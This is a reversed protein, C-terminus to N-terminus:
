ATHTTVDQEQDHYLIKVASQTYGKLEAITHSGAGDNVSIFTSGNQVVASVSGQAVSWATTTSGLAKDLLDSIDLVDEEGRNFDTIVDVLNVERLAEADIVFTDKGSGGTLTNLGAGGLLRDNGAGGYLTDNGAGGYLIDNGDGGYLIDNGAGGYLTDNGAGGDLTDDRDQGYLTDDGDGGYLFNVARTGGILLDNGDGGHLTNSVEGNNRENNAGILVDHGKGGSLTYAASQGSGKDWALLIDNDDTGNLSQNKLVSATASSTSVGDSVTYNFGNVGGNDVHFWVRDGQLDVKNNEVVSKVSLSMGESSGDNWLLAEVPILLKAGNDANTRITEGVAVLPLIVDFTFTRPTPGSPTGYTSGDENGDEVYVNFSAARDTSGDHLFTVRGEALQQSTFSISPVGDVRIGGHSQSTVIFTVETDDPDSFGIDEATLTYSQGKNVQAKFDGTLTPPDNVPLVNLTATQALSDAGHQDTAVVTITRNGVTPNDSVNEYVLGRLITQYVAQSALGTISLRGNEFTVTLGAADSAAKASANLSLSDEGPKWTEGLSATLSKMTPSDVDSLSGNSAFWYANQEYVLPLDAGNGPANVDLDIVPRDNTGTLKIQVVHQDTGGRGDSVTITYNLVSQFGHPLFNFAESGSNFSWQVKGSTHAADIVAQQVNFFSLLQEPTFRSEIGSGSASVGTVKATVVDTFDPDTVSLTGNASLGADTEVLPAFDKDGAELTIVPKDNTGTLKIQVVHQDTGGRGDSVTITYNLVSQFGHPLFNFAESGSNFSWQVKGSTHAADIVAQQVNFFSLLQEPTFRSEIGSGSASVGTVKATVVDTFDPDTVSLTGNASLGADTEVLPAFDKDGAELTIVPRDNTGTLKIQVVHQDTGGRGDSVTITYNLVSQFGHPLFNFAESGSNFSWQVKGSTHAADIVAQQVNFFSLLQEPTFRSEIGSGSASVGTVKATVVDTFDPDTVSLTGNASLGADTEVLPAFDKDGAELTIVPRDNTGILKVEIKQEVSAGHQDTITIFFTEVKVEGAALPNLAKDSVHYKWTVVGAGDNLTEETVIAELWGLYGTEAPRVAVTHTDAQDDYLHFTGGNYNDDFYTRDADSGARPDGEAYETMTGGFPTGISVRPGDNDGVIKIQYVGSKTDGDGDKVTFPITLTAIEGKGLGDFGWGPSVTLEGTVANYSIPPIALTTGTPTAITAAATDFTVAGPGDAGYDFHVGSVFSFTASGDDEGMTGQLVPMASGATLSVNALFTGTNDSANGVEEFTLTNMGTKAIVDLSIKTMTSGPVYTQVLVGNWYVNLAASGVSPTGIEFGLTYHKGNELGAVNQSLKINGPTAGLDVMYGGDSAHMGLYNDAVRELRVGDQGPVTGEIAWGTGFTTWNGWSEAHEWNGDAFSGNALLNAPVAAGLIEPADDMVDIQVHGSATDGDADTVTFSVRMRIADADGSEGRDPHDLPGFQTFTYKGALPDTVKIEFIITGDALKGVLTTPSNELAAVTIPQGNSTLAVKVVPSNGADADYAFFGSTSKLDYNLATIRAGDAGAGFNMKGEVSRVEFTGDALRNETLSINGSYGATPTDDNVKVTLSGSASDGDGDTVKYKFTLTLDEESAGATPHALPAGLKFLYSGDARITLTAVATGSVNGTATWTTVGGAASSTWTVSEVKGVGQDNYIASLSPLSGITVERLGDAGVNFLAGANGSVERAGASGEVNGAFLTQAEDQLTGAFVAGTTKPADDHFRIFGSIDASGTATDGDGDKVTLVARITNAALSVDENSANPNGHALSLYLVTSVKGTVADIAVAFAAKGTEAVRGVVIGGELSLVIAQGETTTLGSEAGTLALSYVKAGTAAARDTGYVTTDFLAAHASQAYALPGGTGHADVGAEAVSSFIASLNAKDDAQLGASEDARVTFLANRGFLGLSPGDDEFVIKDSIDISHSATDGDADKITVTVLVAGKSISVGEDHSLPNDHALSVYQVVSIKGDQGIALAFAAKGTGEIRGVVLGNELSLVIKQGETTRLGSDVEAVALALVQAGSAAKGDAGFKAEVTVVATASQAYALPGLPAGHADHGPNQVGAFLAAVSLLKLPNTLPIDDNQALLSEDVTVSGPASLTVTPMDDNVIVAFSGEASDGDADTAVFRFDLQTANADDAHDLPGVLRFSYSGQASTADLTVIFVPSRADGEGAYAILARGDPSIDYHVAVGGSTLGAPADQVAFTLSRQSGSDAGWNVGLAVDTVSTTMSETVLGSEEVTAAAGPAGITPGDDNIDISLTGTASSGNNDTVTYSFKLRLPDLSGTEGKDPHDLPGRQAFTFAGTAANTVTLTFVVKGDATGTITLGNVTIVVPKGDSTLGFASGNEPDTVGNLGVSTIVGVDAGGDFGFRGDIIQNEFSGDANAGEAVVLVANEAVLPIDDFLLVTNAPVADPQTTDGLLGILEIQEPGQSGQIEDFRAGSSLATSSASYSGDPGAAVNINNQELAAIVAQQPLAVEGLLFTPVNSAGGVIVVESGDAQVLVLNKGEVRIDDIAIDAPLHAVNSADPVISMTADSSGPANGANPDLDGAQALMVPRQSAQNRDAGKGAGSELDVGGSM